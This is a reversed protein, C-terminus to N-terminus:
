RWRYACNGARRVPAVPRGMKMMEPQKRMPAQSAPGNELPPM